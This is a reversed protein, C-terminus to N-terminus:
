ENDEGQLINLLEAKSYDFDDRYPQELYEIAKDIKNGLIDLEYELKYKQNILLHNTEKLIEIVNNIKENEEELKFIYDRVEKSVKGYGNPMVKFNM